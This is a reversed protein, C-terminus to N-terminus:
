FSISNFQFNKIVNKKLYNPIKLNEQATEVYVYFFVNTM